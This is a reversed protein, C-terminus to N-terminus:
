SSLNVESKKIKKSDEPVFYFSTQRRRQDERWRNSKRREKVAIVGLLGDVYCRAARLGEMPQEGMNVTSWGAAAMMRNRYTSPLRGKPTGPEWDRHACFRLDSLLRAMQGRPVCGNIPLNDRVEQIEERLVTDRIKQELQYKGHQDLTKQITALSELVRVDTAPLAGPLTASGTERLQRIVHHDILVTRLERGIPKESKLLILDLGPEYLITVISIKSPLLNSRGGYSLVKKLNDLDEGKVTDVHRGELFEKKWDQRILGKLVTPKYGMAVGVHSLVWARRGRFRFELIKHGGHELVFLARNEPAHDDDNKEM